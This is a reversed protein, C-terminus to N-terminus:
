AGWETDKGTQRWHDERRLFALHRCHECRDKDNSPNVLAKRTRLTHTGCDCRCAWRGEKGDALGYVLLRGVRRGTLDTFSPSLLMQPTIGKTRFQTPQDATTITKSPQYAVGPRLVRAATGNAAYRYRPDDNLTIRAQSM